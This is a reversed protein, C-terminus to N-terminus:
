DTLLKELAVSGNIYGKKVLSRTVMIWNKNKRFVKALIESGEEMGSSSGILTAGRWYLIEENDPVSELAKEFADSSERLKGSTLFEDGREAWEYGRKMKLIRKLEQIPERHDEVRLELIRGMWPNAYVQGSVVLIASSQRGRADGGAEEAAELTRVLREPFELDSSQVYARDMAGWVTDNGMLNAQCSFQEGASHGAFDICKEGTHTSVVGKSDVMGVQRTEAKPDTKLLSDLAEKASKGSAMLELGLPGYSIEVMSQTAVAGVGARAWTVVSGVSFYHSQVAVGLQGTKPDRAVISYTLKALLV